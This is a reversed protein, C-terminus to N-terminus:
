PLLICRNKRRQMVVPFYVNSTHTGIFYDSAALIEISAFTNVTQEFRKEKTGSLFDGYNYGRENRGCLTYFNFNPFKCELQEIISYDDTFIFFDKTHLDLTSLVEFYSLPPVLPSETVIDGARIHMGVYNTPLQLKHITDDVATRIKDSYKFIMAHLEAMLENYTGRFLNAVKQTKSTSDISAFDNWLEYTFYSFGHEKKLKRNTIYKEKFSFTRVTSELKLLKKLRNKIARSLFLTQNANQLSRKNLTHHIDDIEEEIFPQFLDSWGNGFGLASDKSYLKFRIRNVLCFAMARIM